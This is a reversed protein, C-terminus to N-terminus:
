TSSQKLIDRYRGGARDTRAYMSERIRGVVIKSVFEMPHSHPPEALAHPTRRADCLVPRM